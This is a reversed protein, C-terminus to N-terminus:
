EIMGKAEAYEMYKKLKEKKEEVQNKDVPFHLGVDSLLEVVGYLDNLEYELRDYNSASENPHHDDLGFRLSKDVAKIIEACEESLCVLLHEEKKM